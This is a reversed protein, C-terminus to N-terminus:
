RLQGPPGTGGPGNGGGSGDPNGSGSSGGPGNGPSGEPKGTPNVPASPSGSGSPQPSVGTSPPGPAPKAPSTPALTTEPSSQLHQEVTATGREHRSAAGRRKQAKAEKQTERQPKGTADLRVIPPLAAPAPSAAEPLRELPAGGDTDGSGGNLIVLAAIAVAVALGGWRWRGGLSSWASGTRPDATLAVALRELTELSPRRGNEIGAVNASRTEMRAALDEQSLGLAARRVAVLRGFIEDGQRVVRREDIGSSASRPAAEADSLSPREELTAKRDLTLGRPV